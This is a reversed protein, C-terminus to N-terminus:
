PLGKTFSYWRWVGLGFQRTVAFGRRRAHALLAAPEAPYSPPRRLAFRLNVIEQDATGTVSRVYGVCFTGGPRLVRAVTDWLPGPDRLFHYAGMMVAGDFFGDRLFDQPRELDGRVVQVRDDGATRDLASRVYDDTLEIGFLTADAAPLREALEALGHGPGCALDLLRTGSALLERVGQLRCYRYFPIVFMEDLKPQHGATFDVAIPNGTVKLAALIGAYSQGHELDEVSQKGTALQILGTDLEQPAPLDEAAAYRLPPGPTRRVAGHKALADLLCGAAALKEPVVGMRDGFEAMTAPTRLLDLVGHALCDRYVIEYCARRYELYAAEMRAPPIDTLEGPDTLQHATM